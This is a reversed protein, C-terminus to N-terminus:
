DDGEGFIFDDLLSEIDQLTKLAVVVEKNVVNTTIYSGTKGYEKLVDKNVFRQTRYVYAVVKNDGDDFFLSELQTGILIM